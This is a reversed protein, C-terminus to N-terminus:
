FFNRRGQCREVSQGVLLMSGAKWIGRDIGHPRLDIDLGTERILLNGRYARMLAHFHELPISM